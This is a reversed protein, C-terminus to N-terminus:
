PFVIEIANQMTRCQDTIIAKPSTDSMCSLWEKFLWVFIKTNENSLLGCGFLISQGHHNVGVFLAFLMDYKNTLYTTDFSVVDGFAKYGARSRAHAWFLNRMCGDEDLDITSYFNSNEERMKHFYFTISEADGVGLRLRRANQIYNRADQEDFMLAKYGGAEVVISHFNRAVGIGAADNVELRRKVPTLIRKNMPFHRSDTPILDHTHELAAITLKYRGDKQLTAKVREKCYEIGIYKVEGDRTVKQTRYAIAFGLQKTYKAYYAYIEQKLIFYMGKKPEEVEGSENFEVNNDQEEVEESVNFSNNM